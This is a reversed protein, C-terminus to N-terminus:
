PCFHFILVALEIQIELRKMEGFYGESVNRELEHLLFLEVLPSSNTKGAKLQTTTLEKSFSMYQLSVAYVGGGVFFPIHSRLLLTSANLVACVTLLDDCANQSRLLNDFIVM